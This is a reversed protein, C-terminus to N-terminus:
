RPLRTIIATVVGWVQLGDEDQERGLCCVVREGDRDAVVLRGPRPTVSRDVVLLSGERVGEAALHRGTARFFFTAAPHQVLLENLDMPEDEYGQAPSPFGASVPGFTRLIFTPLPPLRMGPTYWVFVLFIPRRVGGPAM